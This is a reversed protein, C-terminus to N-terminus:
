SNRTYLFRLLLDPACTLDSLPRHALGRFVPCAFQRFPKITAHLRSTMPSLFKTSTDTCYTKDSVLSVDKCCYAFANLAGFGWPSNLVGQVYKKILLQKILM